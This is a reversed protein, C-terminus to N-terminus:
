KRLLHALLFPSTTTLSSTSLFYHTFHALRFNDASIEPGKVKTAKIIQIVRACKIQCELSLLDCYFEQFTLDGAGASGM